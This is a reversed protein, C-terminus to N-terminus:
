ECTNPTASKFSRLKRKACSPSMGPPASPFPDFHRLRVPGARSVPMSGNYATTKIVKGPAIELSVPAIRITYDATQSPTEGEAHARRTVFGGPFLLSGALAAGTAGSIELLKRRQPDHRM